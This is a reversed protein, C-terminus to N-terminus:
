CYPPKGVFCFVDLLTIEFVHVLAEQLCSDNGCCAASIGLGTQFHFLSVFALHFMLYVLLHIMPIQLNSGLEWFELPKRSTDWM